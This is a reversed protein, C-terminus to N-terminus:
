RIAIGAFYAIFHFAAPSVLLLSNFRDLFGGHGPLVTDMDKIGLDRKISSITLDGLQGGASLLLGFAILPLPHDLSTNPFITHALYATIPTTLVLAGLHGGLTKNPSTNPFLKRHGLAKGVCYAAIDNLQVVFIIMCLIPRYLADNTIYSLHQLGTGFFLMSTSALAVRQIYGKPQDPLVAGAALVAITIPTIAVFLNYWRALSAAAIAIIGLAVLASLVRHRFLGTARAYERYCLLSIVLILATASAPCLLIPALLAPILLLWTRYRQLIDARTTASLKKLASLTFTLAPVIILAVAIALLTWRTVPHTLANATSFLSPM